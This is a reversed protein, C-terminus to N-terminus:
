GVQLLEVASHVVVCNRGRRKASYLGADAAEILTQARQEAVPVLSAVGISVTVAGTPAGENVIALKDVESRLREAIEIAKEIPADPLLLAFEEGGYRAALDSNRAVMATIITAIIRLCNDGALHGYNDNFLKFHDVDIMLLSISRRLKSARQWEAELRANFSRRNALGSLGDISALEELHLNASRLDHERKALKIAMDDLAAALPAFEAAWTRRGPHAELEGRGIRAAIRSLARIPKVVLREGGFWAALLIIMGFLVLQLYAIGVERDIRSFVEREDLSVILRAETGPLQMAAVINRRGDLGDAAFTRGANALVNRVFPHDAYNRGIIDDLNPGGGLVNGQRDLLFVSAGARRGVAGALRGIWELDVMVLIVADITEDYAMTPFAAVITPQQDARSILYDSLVFNWSQRADQFHKRDSVDLGVVGARTSCMIRGTPGAVSIAKIWPVDTTFGDLFRSCNQGSKVLTVYARALVQMVARTSSVIELQADVGRRAIDLVEAHASEVREARTAELLRVRDVMLPVLTLLALLILRARISLRPKPM